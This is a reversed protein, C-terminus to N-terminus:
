NPFTGAPIFVRKGTVREVDISVGTPATTLDGPANATYVVDVDLETPSLIVLYGIFVPMPSPLPAGYSTAWLNNCDDLMAEDPGMIVKTMTLPRTTQPERVILVPNAPTLPNQQNVLILFKKRLPVDKYIPNHINIESAYNAPKLVPEGPIQQGPQANRQYGCVFKAAYSWAYQGTTAAQAQPVNQPADQLAADTAASASPQRVFVTALLLFVLVQVVLLVPVFYKRFM